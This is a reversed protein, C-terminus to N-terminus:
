RAPNLSRDWRASLITRKETTETHRTSMGMPNAWSFSSAWFAPLFYKPVAVSLPSSSLEVYKRMRVSVRSNPWSVGALPCFTGLGREEEGEEEEEEETRSFMHAALGGSLPFKNFGLQVDEVEGFALDDGAQRPPGALAEAAVVQYPVRLQRRPHVVSAGRPILGVERGHQALVDEPLGRVPAPPAVGPIHDVLREVVVPRVAVRDEVAHQALVVQADGEGCGRARVGDGPQVVVVIVDFAGPRLLLGDDAEHAHQLRRAEADVADPQLAVEEGALRGADVVLDGSHFAVRRETDLHRLGLDIDAHGHRRAIRIQRPLFVVVLRRNPSAHLHLPTHAHRHPIEVVRYPEKLWYADHITGWALVARASRYNEQTGPTKAPKPSASRYKALKVFCGAYTPTTSASVFLVFYVGSLFFRLSRIHPSPWCHLSPSSDQYGIGGGNRDLKSRHISTLLHWTTCTEM